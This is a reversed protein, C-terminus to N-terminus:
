GVEYLILVKQGSPNTIERVKTFASSSEVTKYLDSRFTFDPPVRDGTYPRDVFTIEFPGFRPHYTDDSPERTFEGYISIVLYNVGRLRLKEESFNGSFFVDTIWERDTVVDKTLNLYDPLYDSAFTGELSSIENTLIQSGWQMDRDLSVLYMSNVLSILLLLSLLGYLALRTERRRFFSASALFGGAILLMLVGYLPSFYRLRVVWLFFFATLYTFFFLLMVRSRGRWMKPLGLPFLIVAPFMVLKLFYLISTYEGTMIQRFPTVRGESESPSAILRLEMLPDEGHMAVTTFFALSFILLAALAGLWLRRDKLMDRRFILIYVLMVFPLILFSLKTTAGMGLIIGTHLLYRREKMSKIFFYLAFNTIALLPIDTLFKMGWRWFQPFCFLALTAIRATWENGAEGALKYTSLLSLIIFALPVAFRIALVGLGASYLAAFIFPLLPMRHFFTGTYEGSLINKGILMYGSGDSTMSEPSFNFAFVLVSALIVATIFYNKRLFSKAESSKPVHLFVPWPKPLM